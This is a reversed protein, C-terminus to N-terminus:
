STARLSIYIFLYLFRFFLYLYSFWINSQFELFLFIDCMWVWSRYIIFLKYIKLSWVKIHNLKKQNKRRTSYDTDNGTTIAVIDVSEM